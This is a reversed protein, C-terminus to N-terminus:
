YSKNSRYIFTTSNKFLTQDTKIKFESWTNNKRKDLEQLIIDKETDGNTTIRHIFKAEPEMLKTEFNGLFYINSNEIKISSFWTSDKLNLGYNAYFVTLQKVKYEGSPIGELLIFPSDGTSSGTYYTETDTNQLIVRGGHSNIKKSNYSMKIVIASVNHKKANKCGILLITLGLLVLIYIKFRIM